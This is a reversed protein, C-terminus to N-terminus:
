SVVVVYDVSATGGISDEATITFAYTGNTSCTGTIVGSAQNLSFGTPLHGSYNFLVPATGGTTVVTHTYPVGNSANPLTLTTIVVTPDINGTDINFGAQASINAFDQTVLVPGRVASDTRAFYENLRDSLTGTASAGRNIAHLNLAAVITTFNSASNLGDVRVYQQFFPVVLDVEPAAVQLNVVYQLGSQAIVGAQKIANYADTINQQLAEFQAATLPTNAIPM